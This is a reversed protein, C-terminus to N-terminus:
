GSCHTLHPTLSGPQLVTEKRIIFFLGARQIDKLIKLYAEKYSLTETNHLDNISPKLTQQPPSVDNVHQKQFHCTM